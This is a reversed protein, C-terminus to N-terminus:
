LRRRGGLQIFFSSHGLWLVTDRTRELAHLPIHQAPVPRPPTTNVRKTVLSRLLALIFSSDDSLIAKPVINHFAGDAYHPSTLIRQLIEGTPLAGFQMQRLFAWTGGATCGGLVATASLAKLFTRRNM